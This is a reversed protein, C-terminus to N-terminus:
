RLTAYRKRRLMLKVFGFIAVVLLPLCTAIVQWKLREEQLRARDLLRLRFEKARVEMLGSDDCLYDICNLIFNKNGFVQGTYRDEGLPIVQGKRTRNKIVDGDGVVIMATQQSVDRYGIASDQAIEPPIRNKFNSVFQGELLMAITQPGADFRKPNPKQYLIDLSVRVPSNFVRSYQSTFMLPTKAVGKVDIADITSVFEFKVANLNKAIVHNSTSMAVPFFFWPKLTQSPKNGIQGDFAPIPAASLDLVLNPNVRVGYRFLMDNLGLDPAIGVTESKQSLSDMDAEVGDLLWLLKGGKMVYQDLVFLDKDSFSSDPDAIVVARYGDLSGLKGDIKKREVVYFTSLERKIDALEENDAEGHGDLLCIIHPYKLTLKRIANCVGFELSQISNNLMEDPTAGYQDQLLMVPVEEGRYSIIAGPFITQQSLEDGSKSQLTSPQIGKSALQRYLQDRQEQDQYSSPDIFEYEINDNSYTRLEDLLERTASQLRKFAPPFDGDLYVRVYVVDELGGMLKKTAPSLTFRKESTLDLRTFVFSSAINVMIIICVLLFLRILHQSKM